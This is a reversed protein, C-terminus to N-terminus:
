QCNSKFKSYKRVSYKKPRYGGLFPPFSPRCRAEMLGRDLPHWSLLPGAPAKGAPHGGHAVCCRFMGRDFSFPHAAVLRCRRVDGVPHQQGVHDDREQTLERSWVQWTPQYFGLVSTLSHNAAGSSFIISVHCPLKVGSYWLSRFPCLTTLASTRWCSVVRRDEVPAKKM